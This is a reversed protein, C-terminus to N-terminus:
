SKLCVVEKRRSTVVTALLPTRSCVAANWTRQGASQKGTACIKATPIVDKLYDGAM